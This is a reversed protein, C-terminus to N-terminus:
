LSYPMKGVRQDEVIINKNYCLTLVLTELKKFIETLMKTEVLV